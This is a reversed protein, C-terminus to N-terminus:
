LKMFEKLAAVAERDYKGRFGHQAGEVPHWVCDPYFKAAKESYSVPVIRDATGHLILVPKDFGGIEKFVDMRLVSKAYDRGLRMPFFLITDPINAPDFRTFLVKGARIDDPISLAPYFLALKEVADPQRSAYLASVLGGQSCGLLSIRDRDVGPQKRVFNMVSRLDELETLVTMDRSSGDSRCRRGGGNFDFTYCVYGLEALAQAYVRLTRDNALFAHCLVVAPRKDTEDGIRYVHGRVTLSDRRCEFGSIM